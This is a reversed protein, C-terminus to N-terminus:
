PVPMCHRAPAPARPEPRVQLLVSGPGGRGGPAANAPARALEKFLSAIKNLAYVPDGRKSVLLVQYLIPPLLQLEAGRPPIHWPPAAAVNSALEWPPAHSKHITRAHVM